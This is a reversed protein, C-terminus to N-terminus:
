EKYIGDFYWISIVVESFQVDDDILEVKAVISKNIKNNTWAWKYDNFCEIMNWGKERFYKDVFQIPWGIFEDLNFLGNNDNLYKESKM